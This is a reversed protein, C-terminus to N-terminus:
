HHATLAGDRPRDPEKDMHKMLVSLRAPNPSELLLSLDRAWPVTRNNPNAAEPRHRDIM